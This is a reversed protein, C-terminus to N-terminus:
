SGCTASASRIVAMSSRASILVRVPMARGVTIVQAKGRHAWGRQATLQQVKGCIERRDAARDCLPVPSVPGALLVQECHRRAAKAMGIGAPKVIGTNLPQGGVAAPSAAMLATLTICNRQGPLAINSPASRRCWQRSPATVPWTSTPSATRLSPFLSPLMGEFAPALLQSDSGNLGTRGKAHCPDAMASCLLQIQLHASLEARRPPSRLM